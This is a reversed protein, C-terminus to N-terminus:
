PYLVTNLAAFRWRALALAAAPAERRFAGHEPPPGLSWLTALFM